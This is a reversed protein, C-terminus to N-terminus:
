GRRTGLAANSNLLCCKTSNGSNSQPKSSDTIFNNPRLLLELAASLHM